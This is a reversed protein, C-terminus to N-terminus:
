NPELHYHRRRGRGREQCPEHCADSAPLGRHRLKSALRPSNTAQWPGAAASSSSTSSGGTAARLAQGDTATVKTQAGGGKCWIRHWIWHGAEWLFAQPPNKKRVAPSCQTPTLLTESSCTRPALPRSHDELGAHGWFVSGARGRAARASAPTQPLDSLPLQAQGLQKHRFLYACGDTTILKAEGGKKKKGGMKGQLGTETSRASSGTTLLSLPSAKKGARAGRM